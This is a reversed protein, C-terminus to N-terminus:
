EEAHHESIESTVILVWDDQTPPLPATWKLNRDVEVPGVPQEAGTRPDFWRARWAGPEIGKLILRGGGTPQYAIWLQGLVVACVPRAVDRAASPDLQVREPAPQLQWWPLTQVLKAGLGCQRAGDHDLATTWVPGIQPGAFHEESDGPRKWNWIGQSGYTHGMTAGSLLSVWFAYRADYPSFIPGYQGQVDTAPHAEYWPEGNVVPKPPAPLADVAPTQESSPEGNLVPKLASLRNYLQPLDRIDVASARRHGTQLMHFDHWGSQHFLAYWNATPSLHITTAHAYPDCEEIAAGVTEWTEYDSVYLADGSLSWVAPFAGLRTVAYRAFQVAQETTFRAAPLTPRDGGWILAWMVVLGREAAMACFRDLRRFYAPNPHTLDDGGRVASLKADLQRM